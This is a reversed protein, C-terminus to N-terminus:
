EAKDEVEESVFDLSAYKLLLNYWDVVKKM